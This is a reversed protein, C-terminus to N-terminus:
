PLVAGRGGLWQYVLRLAKGEGAIGGCEPWRDLASPVSLAPPGAPRHPLLLRAEADDCRSPSGRQRERDTVGPRVVEVPDRPQRPDRGDGDTHCQGEATQDGPDLRQDPEGPALGFLGLRFLGRACAGERLPSSISLSRLLAAM